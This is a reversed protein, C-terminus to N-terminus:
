PGGTHRTSLGSPGGLGQRRLTDGNDPGFLFSRALPVLRRDPGPALPPTPTGNRGRGGSSDGGWGKGERTGCSRGPDEARGPTGNRRQGGSGDGGRGPGEGSGCSRGPPGMLRM